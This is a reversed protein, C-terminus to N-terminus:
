GRQSGASCSAAATLYPAGHTPSQPAGLPLLSGSSGAIGTWPMREERGPAADEGLETWRRQPELRPPLVSGRSTRRPPLKDLFLFLLVKRKLSSRPSFHSGSCGWVKFTTHSRSESLLGDGGGGGWKEQTRQRQQLRQHSHHRHLAQPLCAQVGPMRAPAASRRRNQAASGFHPTFFPHVGPSPRERGPLPGVNCLSRSPWGEPGANATRAWALASKAFPEAQRDSQDLGLVIQLSEVPCLVWPSSSVMGKIGVMKGKKKMIVAVGKQASLPSWERHESPERHIREESKLSVWHSLYQERGKISFPVFPLWSSNPLKDWTM